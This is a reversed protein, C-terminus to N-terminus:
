AGCYSLGCPWEEKLLRVLGRHPGGFFGGSRGLRELIKVNKFDELFIVIFQM